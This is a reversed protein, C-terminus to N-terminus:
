VLKRHADEVIKDIDVTERREVDVIEPQIDFLFEINGEPGTVPSHDAAMVRWGISGVFQAIGLLVDLHVGPDRVVGKKGVQARGAEFQPKILTIVRGERGLIRTVAPLILRVSIFSVDMVCLAPQEDFAEATLHRANTREMVAVRPDNRLKWDLQGYGVDVAYVKRAGARLLVDTFGGTSAGIDMAVADRANVAFAQMARELKLGGRSVYPNSPGRIEVADGEKVPESAKNARRDNLFVVGAMIMAQAKERSIALGRGVLATDLREENM